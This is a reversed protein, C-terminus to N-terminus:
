SFLDVEDLTSRFRPRLRPLSHDADDGLLDSVTWTQMHTQRPLLMGVRRIRHEDGLDLLVYGVLQLLAERLWPRTVQERTKVEVLLDGVALDADAGGVAWSGEFM